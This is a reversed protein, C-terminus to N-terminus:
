ERHSATRGEGPFDASTRRMVRENPHPALVVVANIDSIPIHHTLLRNARAGASTMLRSVYPIKHRIPVPYRPPNQRIVNSLVIGGLGIETVKGVTRYSVGNEIQVIGITAGTPLSAVEDPTLKKTASLLPKPITSEIELLSWGTAGLCAALLLMERRM